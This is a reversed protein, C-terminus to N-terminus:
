INIEISTKWKNCSNWFELTSNKRNHKGLCSLETWTRKLLQIDRLSSWPSQFTEVFPRSYKIGFGSASKSDSDAWSRLRSRGSCGLSIEVTTPVMNTTTPVMNIKMQFSCHQPPHFYRPVTKPLLFPIQVSPLFLALYVCDLKMMPPIPLLCKESWHFHNDSRVLKLTTQQALPTEFVTSSRSLFSNSIWFVRITGFFSSEVWLTEPLDM